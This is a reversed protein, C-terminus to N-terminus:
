YSNHPWFCATGQLYASHLSIHSAPSSSVHKRDSLAFWASITTQPLLTVGGPPRETTPSLLSQEWGKARVWFWVGLRTTGSSAVQVAIKNNHIVRPVCMGEQFVVLVAIWCFDSTKPLLNHGRFKNISACIRTEIVSIEDEAGRSRVTCLWQPWRLVSRIWTRLVCNKLSQFLPCMLLAPISCCQGWPHTLGLSGDEMGTLMMSGRHLIRIGGRKEPGGWVLRQGNFLPFKVFTVWLGPGLIHNVVLGSVAWHARRCLCSHQESPLNQLLAKPGGQPWSSELELEIEMVGAIQCWELPSQILREESLLM